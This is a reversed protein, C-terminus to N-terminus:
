TTMSRWRLFLAAIAGVAAIILGTPEPVISLSVFSDGADGRDFTNGGGPDILSGDPAVFVEGFEPPTTVSRAESVVSEVVLENGTPNTFTFLWDPRTEPIDTPEVQLLYGFGPQLSVTGEQSGGPWVFKAGFSVGSANSTPNVILLEAFWDEASDLDDAFVESVTGGPAVATPGFDLHRPDLENQTPLVAKAPQPPLVVACCAAALAVLVLSFDISRRKGRAKENSSM